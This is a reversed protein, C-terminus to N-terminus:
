RAVLFDGRGNGAMSLGGPPTPGTSPLTPHSFHHPSRVMDESPPPAACGAGCCGPSLTASGRGKEWLGVM